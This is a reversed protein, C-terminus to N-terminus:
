STALYYLSTWGTQGTANVTVPVWRDIATDVESGTITVSTGELMVGLDPYNLGPGARLHLNSVTSGTAAPSTPLPKCAGGSPTGGGPCALPTPAPQANPDTTQSPVVVPAPTTVIPTAVWCVVPNEQCYMWYDARAPQAVHLISVLATLIIAALWKM